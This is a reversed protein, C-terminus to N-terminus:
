SFMRKHRTSREALPIPRQQTENLYDSGLGHNKAGSETIGEKEDDKAVDSFVM